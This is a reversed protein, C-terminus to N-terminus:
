AADTEPPIPLADHAPAPAQPALLWGLSHAAIEPAECPQLRDAWRVQWGLRAVDGTAGQLAQAQPDGLLPMLQARYAASAYRPDRSGALLADGIPRAPVAAAEGLWAGLTDILTHLEKPLALAHLEGAPAAAPAPLAELERAPREREFEAETVDVLEHGLVFGPRVPTALADGLLTGLDDLGQLWRRVDTTTVGTTGLTVRQRDAQHLARDFQSKMALLRAQALGIERALRLTAPDEQAAATIAALVQSAREILEFVREHRERARRLRFESGSAIADAFEDHLRALQAQLHRLQAPQLTGLQQAGAVQALLGGLEADEDAPRALPALLAMVRSALPTLEYELAGADWAILGAARLPRLALELADDRLRHLHQNLAERSMRAQPLAMLELFVWLRLHVLSAPGAFLSRLAEVVQAQEALQWWLPADFPAAGDRFWHAAEDTAPADDDDTPIPVATM